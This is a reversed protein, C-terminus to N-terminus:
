PQAKALAADLQNRHEVVEPCSDEGGWESIVTEIYGRAMELASVLNDHANCARVIFEADEKQDALIGELGVVEKDDTGINYGSIYFETRGPYDVREDIFLKWPIPTHGM